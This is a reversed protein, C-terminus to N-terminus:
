RSMAQARRPRDCCGDHDAHDAVGTMAAGIGQGRGRLPVHGRRERSGAARGGALLALGALEAQLDLAILALPRCQHADWGV